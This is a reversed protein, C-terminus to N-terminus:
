VEKKRDELVNKVESEEVIKPFQFINNSGELEYKVRSAMGRAVKLIGKEFRARLGVMRLLEMVTDEYSAEETILESELAQIAEFQAFSKQTAIGKSVYTLSKFDKASKAIKQEFATKGKEGLKDYLSMLFKALGTDVSVSGDTWSLVAEHGTTVANRLADLSTPGNDQHDDYKPKKATAENLFKDIKASTKM